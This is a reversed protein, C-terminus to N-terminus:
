LRYVSRFMKEVIIGVNCTGYFFRCYFPDRPWSSIITGYVVSMALFVRQVGILGGEVSFM